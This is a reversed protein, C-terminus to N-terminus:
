QELQGARSPPPRAAGLMSAQVSSPSPTGAAAVSRPVARGRCLSARAPRQGQDPSNSSAKWGGGCQASGNFSEGTVTSPACQFTITGSPPPKGAAAMSCPASAPSARLLLLRAGTFLLWDGGYRASGIPSARLSPLRASAGVPVCGRRRCAWPWVARVTVSSSGQLSLSSSLWWAAGGGAQGRGFQAGRQVAGSCLLGWRGGHLSHRGGNGGVGGAVPSKLRQVRQRGDGVVGNGAAPVLDPGWLGGAPTCASTRGCVTAPGQTAPLM